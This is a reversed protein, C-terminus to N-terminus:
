YSSIIRDNEIPDPGYRNPGKTGRIFGNELLVWAMLILVSWFAIRSLAYESLPDVPVGIYEAVPVLIMVGCFSYGVWFPWDRDNFRKVTIATAPIAVAFSWLLGGITPPGYNDSSFAYYDPDVVIGIATQFTLVVVFSIWWIKRGIRGSFSFFQDIINATTM